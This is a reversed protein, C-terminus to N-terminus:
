IVCRYIHKVGTGLLAKYTDDVFWQPAFDSFEVLAITQMRKSIEFSIAVQVGTEEHTICCDTRLHVLEPLSSMLRITGYTTTIKM